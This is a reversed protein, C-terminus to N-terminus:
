EEQSLHGQLLQLFREAWSRFVTGAVNHHTAGFKQPPKTLMKRRTLHASPSAKSNNSNSERIEGDDDMMMMMMELNVV